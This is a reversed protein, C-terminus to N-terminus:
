IKKDTFGLLGGLGSYTKQRHERAWRDILRSMNELRTDAVYNTSVRSPTPTIKLNSFDFKRPTAQVPVKKTAPKIYNKKFEKLGTAPKGEMQRMVELKEALEGIMKPTAQPENSIIVKNM